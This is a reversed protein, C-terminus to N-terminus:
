QMNVSRLTKVRGGYLTAPSSQIIRDIPREM